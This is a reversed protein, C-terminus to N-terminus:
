LTIQWKKAAEYFGTKHFDYYCEINKLEDIQLLRQIEKTFELPACGNATVINGDSVASQQLYLKEGTYKGQGHQQLFTLMNSTHKVNNLFGNIGLFLSANCIGALIKKDAITKEILPILQQNQPAFWDLGGILILAHYNDPLTDLSYDPTVQFGGISRVPKGDLTFTKACYPTEKPEFDAGINISAALYAPEWDAFQNLLVFIIEKKSM